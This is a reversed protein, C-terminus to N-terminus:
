THCAPPRRTFRCNPRSTYTASTMKVSRGRWGSPYSLATHGVDDGLRANAFLVARADVDAGGRANVGRGIRRLIVDVRRHTDLALLADQHTRDMRHKQIQLHGRF